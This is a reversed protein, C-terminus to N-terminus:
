SRNRVAAGVATQIKSLVAAQQAATLALFQTSNRMDNGIIVPQSQKQGDANVFYFLKDRMIPGGVAFGPQTSDKALFSDSISLPYTTGNINYQHRDSADVGLEEQPPLLLVEGDIDNTGSKTIANVTAGVGRGYEADYQTRIVQFEKIAAQSFTFPARTGGTQQGFFDNNSSAGDINYDTSLPRAGNATVAGDFSGHRRGADARGALPLRPRPDAPERDAPEHGLGGTRVAAYRHGARRRHRHDDRQCQPTLKIDAKTTNGLLVTLKPSAAKGLGALEADVRYRGPPLLNLTYDGDNETVAHPHPRHRSEHGDGDRGSARAPATPSAATSRAPRSSDSQAFAAACMVVCLMAIFVSRTRSHM